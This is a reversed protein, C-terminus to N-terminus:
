SKKIDTMDRISQNKIQHILLVTAITIIVGLIVIPLIGYECYLWSNATCPFFMNNKWSGYSYEGTNLVNGSFFDTFYIM